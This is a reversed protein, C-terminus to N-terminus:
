MKHRFCSSRKRALSAKLSEDEIKVLLGLSGELPMNLAEGIPGLNQATGELKGEIHRNQPNINMNGYLAISPCTIVLKSIKLNEDPTFSSKCSFTLPINEYSAGAIWESSYQSNEFSCVAQSHFKTFTHSDIRIEPSFCNLTLLPSRVPGRLLLSATITGYDLFPFPSLELKGDIFGKAHEYCLEGAFSLPSELFQGTLESIRITQGSTIECIGKLLIHSGINRIGPLDMKSLDTQLQFDGM